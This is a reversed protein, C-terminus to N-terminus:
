GGKGGHPALRRSRVLLVMALHAMEPIGARPVLRPLAPAISAALDGARGRGLGLRYPRGLHHQRCCMEVVVGRMAPPPVAVDLREALPAVQQMVPGLM